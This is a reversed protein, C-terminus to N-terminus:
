PEGDKSQRLEPAIPMLWGNDTMYERTCEGQHICFGKMHGADCFDCEKELVEICIDHPYKHWVKYYVPYVTHRPVYDHTM